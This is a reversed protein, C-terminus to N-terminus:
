PKEILLSGLLEIGNTLTAYLRRDFYSAHLLLRKSALKAPAEYPDM